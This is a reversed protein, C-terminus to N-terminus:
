IKLLYSAEITPINEFQKIVARGTEEEAFIGFISSGSGSMSAYLAGEAYLKEKIDKLEPHKPFITREFDNVAVVKWEKVPLEPLKRLDFDSKQPTIGGFAERTSVYVDPKILVLWMGEIGLKEMPELLEGRGSGYMPRNYIFFPCDAGLCMALEALRADDAHGHLANLMKLVFSADASGGGCGAGDPLHKELIIRTGFDETGLEKFYLEAARYVLNKELPCDVERGRLEVDFGPKEVPLVELIDCFQVPNGASGAHKGVPYFITELNHYGDPRKGVIRLGINIKANVFGIM